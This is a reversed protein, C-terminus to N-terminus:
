LFPIMYVPLYHIGKEKKYDKTYVVYKEGIRESFKGCFEDLSPHVKYGSSKIEIPCIKNKRALLFDIEYNHTSSVKPFTYYYLENGSARLMQAVVNEYLYGLNVGLKDSLLKDYIINETFDRDKFALTTFLGTDCLFMKYRTLDKHLSMGSSPDNAHYSLYVTMSDQMDAIVDRVRGERGNEIVSSIQYRSVNKSLQAPIAEFLLSAKGTSDIKRFDEAYLELINRKVRDVMSLNNTNIYELVAQPMGGVLMYLRFERLMRRNMDDGLSIGQEFATKLLPFTTEDGMAWKFEEYDMPFMNLRTEESPIVIDKINKRISLLSGTEIYDYRGDKVLHKIAQRALPEKQVEDFIIVSKHEILNVHYILQLRLFLYNLDSLDAFLQHAEKPAISFDILIYSEYENKAFEEAITSKGIRRAGKILLASTGNSQEKWELMNDYIKRKFPKGLM